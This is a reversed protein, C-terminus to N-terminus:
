GGVGETCACGRMRETVNKTNTENYAVVQTTILAATLKARIKLGQPADIIVWPHEFDLVIPTDCCLLPTEDVVAPLVVNGPPCVCPTGVFKSLAVLFFTVTDTPELGQAFVTVQDSVEFPDSIGDLMNKDILINM